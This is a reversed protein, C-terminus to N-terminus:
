GGSTCTSTWLHRPDQRGQPARWLLDQRGLLHAVATSFKVMDDAQAVDNLAEQKILLGGTARDMLANLLVPRLSNGCLDDLIKAFRFRLFSKYELAQVPWEAVAVCFAEITAKTFTLEFLRPSQASPSLSFGKVATPLPMVLDKLQTFANM